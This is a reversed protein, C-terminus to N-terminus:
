VEEMPICGRNLCIGGLKEKEILTVYAGKQALALAAPYGAPGGGIIAVRKSM